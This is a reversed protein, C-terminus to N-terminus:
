PRVVRGPTRIWQGPLLAVVGPNQAQLWQVNATTSPGYTRGYLAWWGEGPQVQVWPGLYAAPPPPPPPQYPSLIQAWRAEVALGPCATAAGPMDKHKVTRSDDALHDGMQLLARLWQVKRVMLEPM